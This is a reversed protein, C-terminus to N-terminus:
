ASVVSVDITATKSTSTTATLTIDSATEGVGNLRVHKNDIKEITLYSSNGEPISFTVTDNANEPVSTLALIISEGATVEVDDAGFSISTAPLTTVSITFSKSVGNDTTAYLTTEGLGVATVTYTKNILGEEITAVADNDSRYSLESTADAPTTTVTGNQTDGVTAGVINGTSLSIATAPKPQATALVVANAFPCIAFTGWAHLYENWAM